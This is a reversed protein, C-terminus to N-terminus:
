VLPHIDVSEFNYVGGGGGGEQQKLLFNCGQPEPTSSTSSLHNTFYKDINHNIGSNDSHFSLYCIYQNHKVYSYM